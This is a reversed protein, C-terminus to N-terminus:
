SAQQPGCRRRAFLEGLRAAVVGFAFYLGPLWPAVGGLGNVGNGYEFVGAAVMVMETASGVVAALLGCILAPRGDAFRCGVVGALAFVLATAPGQPSDRVLATVAYLVIISAVAALGEKVGGDRRQPAIHLRLEALAATAAGVLLPFWIQSKWIYPVGTALYKTTGSVVHGQDGILGGAAGVVFLAFLEAGLLRPRLM